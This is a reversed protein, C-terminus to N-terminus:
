CFQYTAFSHFNFCASIDYSCFLDGEIGSASRKHYRDERGTPEILRAQWGKSGVEAILRISNSSTFMKIFQNRLMFRINTSNRLGQSVTLSGALM